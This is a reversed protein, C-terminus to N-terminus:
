PHKRGERDVRVAIFECNGGSIEDHSPLCAADWLKIARRCGRRSCVMM